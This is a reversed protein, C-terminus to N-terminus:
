KHNERREGSDHKNEIDKQNVQPHLRRNSQYERREAGLNRMGVDTFQDPHCPLFPIENEKSPETLIEFLFDWFNTCLTHWPDGLCFVCMCVHATM